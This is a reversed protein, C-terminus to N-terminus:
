NCILVEFSGEVTNEDDLQAELYGFIRAGDVDFIELFGSTAIQTDSSTIHFRPSEQPNPLPISFSGTQLPIIMSVFSNGPSPVACPDESAEKSSLFKVRYKLDSSFIFAHASKSTWAEGAVVGQLRQNPLQIEDKGCHTSLASIFLLPFLFAVRM